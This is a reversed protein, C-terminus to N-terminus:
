SDFRKQVYRQIMTFVFIILFLVISAASAVGLRKNAYFMEKIYYVM